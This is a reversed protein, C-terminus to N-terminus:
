RNSRLADTRREDRDEHQGRTDGYGPALCTEPDCDDAFTVLKASKRRIFSHFKPVALELLGRGSYPEARDVHDVFRERILNEAIEALIHEAM